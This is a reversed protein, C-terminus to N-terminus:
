ISEDTEETKKGLTGYVGFDVIAAAHEDLSGDRRRLWPDDSNEAYESSKIPVPPPPDVARCLFPEAAVDLTTRGAASLRNFSPKKRWERYDPDSPFFNRFCNTCLGIQEGTNLQHWVISTRGWNDRSESLPNCGAIHPCKAQEARAAELRRKDLTKLQARFNKQNENQLLEALWRNLRAAISIVWKKM